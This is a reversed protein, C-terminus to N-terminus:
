IDSERVLGGIDWTIPIDDNLEMLQSDTLPPLRELKCLEGPVSQSNLLLMGQEWEIKSVQFGRLEMLRIHDLSGTFLVNPVRSNVFFHENESLSPIFM